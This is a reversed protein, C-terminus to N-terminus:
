TRTQVRQVPVLRSAGSWCREYRHSATTYVLRRDTLRQIFLNNGAAAVRAHAMGVDSISRHFYMRNVHGRYVLLLKELGSAYCIYYNRMGLSATFHVKSLSDARTNTENLTRRLSSTENQQRPVFRKWAYM